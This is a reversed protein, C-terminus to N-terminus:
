LLGYLGKKSRAANSLDGNEILKLTKADLLYCGQWLLIPKGNLDCYTSSQSFKFDYESFVRESFFLGTDRREIWMNNYYISDAPPAGYHMWQLFDHFSEGSRIPFIPHSYAM